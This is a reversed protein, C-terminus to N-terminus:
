APKTHPDSTETGVMTAIAAEAATAEAILIRLAAATDGLLRDSIPLDGNVFRRIAREDIDLRRSTAPTGGFVQICHAFHDRVEQTSSTTM